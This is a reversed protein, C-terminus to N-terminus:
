DYHKGTIIRMQVKLQFISISQFVFFVNGLLNSNRISILIREHERERNCSVFPNAKVFM